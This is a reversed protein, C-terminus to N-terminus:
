WGSRKIFQRGIQEFAAMLDDMGMNHTAHRSEWLGMSGRLKDPTGQVFLTDDDASVRRLGKIDVESNILVVNYFPIQELPLACRKALDGKLISMSRSNTDVMNPIKQATLDKEGDSFLSWEADRLDGQIRGTYYQTHIVYVAKETLVVFEPQVKEGDDEYMWHPYLCGRYERLVAADAERRYTVPYYNKSLAYYVKYCWIQQQNMQGLECGFAHYFPTKRYEAIEDIRKAAKKVGLAYGLVAALLAFVGSAVWFLTAASEHLIDKIFWFVVLVLVLAALLGCAAGGMGMTRRYKANARRAEAEEREFREADAEGAQKAPKKIPKKDPQSVPQNVPKPAKKKPAEKKQVEQKSAEQKPIKEKAEEEEAEDAVFGHEKALQTWYRAEEASAEVGIGMEYCQGLWYMAEEDGADAARQYWVVAEQMDKAPWPDYQGSMYVIGLLKCAEPMGKEAAEKLFQFAEDHMEAEPQQYCELAKHYLAQLELQTNEM